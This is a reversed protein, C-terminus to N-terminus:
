SGGGPEADSMLAVAGDSDALRTLAVKVMATLPLAIVAGVVGWLAGFAFVAFITMFPNLDLSKGVIMPELVYNELAQALALVGLVVLAASGGSSAVALVVAIAGGVLNGVFPVLSSLAILLALFPAYPVGALSFATVYVAAMIGMVKLKGFLYRNSVTVIEDLTRAVQPRRSAPVSHTAVWAFRTREALMLIVLVFTVFGLGLAGMLTGFFGAAVSAGQSRLQEVGRGIADPPLGAAGSLWANGQAQLDRLSQSIRPWDNVVQAVQLTVLAVVGLVFLVLAFAAAAIALREGIGRRVLWQLLPTLVMALIAALALPLLISRGFYLIAPLGLVVITLRAAASLTL